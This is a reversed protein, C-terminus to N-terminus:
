LKIYSNESPKEDTDTSARLIVKWDKSIAKVFSCCSLLSEAGLDASSINWTTIAGENDYLDGILGQGKSYMLKHWISKGKILLNKNNSIAQSIIIKKNM